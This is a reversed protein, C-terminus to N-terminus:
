GYQTALTYYRLFPRLSLEPEAYHQQMPLKIKIGKVNWQDQGWQSVCDIDTQAVKM